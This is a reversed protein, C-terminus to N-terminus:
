EEVTANIIMNDHDNRGEDENDGHTGIVRPMEQHTTPLYNNCENATKNRETIKYESGTPGGNKM